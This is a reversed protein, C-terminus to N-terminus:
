LFHKCIFTPIIRVSHDKKSLLVSNWHDSEIAIEIHNNNQWLLVMPRM